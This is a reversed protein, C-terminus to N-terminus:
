SVPSISCLTSSTSLLILAYCTLSLPYPCSGGAVPEGATPGRRVLGDTGLGVRLLAVLLLLSSALAPFLPSLFTVQLATTPPVVCRLLQRKYVDSAASSRSQTSRPPRRIM